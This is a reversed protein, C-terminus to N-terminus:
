TNLEVATATFGVNGTVGASAIVVFGYTGSGILLNPKITANAMFSFNHVVDMSGVANIRALFVQTYSSQSGMSFDTILAQKGAPVNFMAEASRNYTPAIASLVVDPRTGTGGFGIYITGVNNLGTGFTLCQANKFSSWQGASAITVRTGANLTVTVEVIQGANDYYRCLVTRAGTGAAADSGSNSSITLAQSTNLSFRSSGDDPVILEPGTTLSNNFSLNFGHLNHVRAGAVNGLAANLAFDKVSNVAAVIADQKADTAAGTPLPL